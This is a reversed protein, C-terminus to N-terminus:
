PTPPGETPAGAPLGQPQPMNSNVLQDAKPDKSPPFGIAGRIENATLVENRVFKDTIEALDAVPVLKFPDRFYAIREGKKTRTRGLLSRQMAEVVAVLIPEVTRSYYNIMTKEDATGNMVADTIGLENYLMSTLYEVQHMLNNEAPRNLQTIKEAADAYAIGYQSGALQSEIDNRRREAQERKAESKITFPLQIIIDLKGSGSQEDVADLLSLKRILRQLTSNPENMMSYLPNEVIAVFRKELIIEERRGKTENYLSVKVHAPHWEVIYGVRLTVVDFNDSHEPSDITDVPVIAACGNDFLTRVIDQRFAQPGQDLNPEYTLAYWLESKIDDKYRDQDDLQIHKLKVAAIDIAIRTYVSTVITRGNVFSSRVRSPNQGYSVSGTSFYGTDTVPDRSLFANWARKLGEFAM